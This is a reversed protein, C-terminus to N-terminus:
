RRRRGKGTRKRAKKATKRYAVYSLALCVWAAVFLVRPVWQLVPYLSYGFFYQTVAALLLLIFFAAVFLVSKENVYVGRATRKM